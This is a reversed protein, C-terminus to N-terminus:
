HKVANRSFYGLLLGVGLFLLGFPGIFRSYEAGWNGYLRGSLFLPMSVDLFLLGCGVMQLVSSAQFWRRVRLVSYCVLITAGLLEVIFGLLIVFAENM